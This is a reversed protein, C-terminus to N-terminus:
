VASSEGFNKEFFHTRTRQSLFNEFTKVMRELCNQTLGPYVGLFFSDHMVKDSNELAGVIRSKINMFAPQRVINGAFLVRTEINNAEFCKTLELRSFGAKSKITLPFAFWCTEAQPLSQPLILLDQYEKFFNYLFKFNYKRKEIFDPLKKLQELGIACQLDLPKLNYGINTYTYKHDYGLPLDGFKMAFRRRCAGQCHTEGPVCWCDKGWSRLSDVIKAFKPNNVVVAGGEGMTIHHAPYFSYTALDGFTGLKKGDFTSGLADCCDEILFINKEQCFNKIQDIEAPNGLTHAFVVARTKTSYAQKIAQISPNYFGLQTDIFVPVLGNQVIPAVTTPFSAAPVIVEAGPNLAADGLQKSCLASIAVLNASSGSNVVFSNSAGTFTALEREFAVGNKGYTLTFKLLDKVAAVVENEDYCRGAYHIKYNESKVSEKRTALHHQKVLELIQNELEQASLATSHRREM